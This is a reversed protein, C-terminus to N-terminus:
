YALVEYRDCLSRGVFQYSSVHDRWKLPLNIGRGAHICAPALASTGSLGSGDYILVDLSGKNAASYTNNDVVGYGRNPVFWNDYLKNDLINHNDYIGGGLNYTYGLCFETAECVGNGPSSASATSPTLAMLIAASLLASVFAAVATRRAHMSATRISHTM